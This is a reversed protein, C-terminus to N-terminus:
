YINKVAFHREFLIMEGKLQTGGGPLHHRLPRTFHKIAGGTWYRIIKRYISCVFKTSRYKKKRCM